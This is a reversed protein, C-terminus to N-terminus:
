RDLGVSYLRSSAGSGGFCLDTVGLTHGALSRRPRHVNVRQNGLDDHCRIM